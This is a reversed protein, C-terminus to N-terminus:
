SVIVLDVSDTVLEGLQTKAKYVVTAVGQANQTVEISVIQAVEDFSLLYEIVYARLTRVTLKETQTLPTGIRTDWRWTGRLTEFGIRIRQVLRPMGQTLVFRKGDSTLELDGRVPFCPM